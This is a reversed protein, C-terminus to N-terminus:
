GRLGGRVILLLGVLGLGVLCAYKVLESTGPPAARAPGSADLWGPPLPPGMPEQSPPPPASPDDLVGALEARTLTGSADKDLHELIRDAWDGRTFWNGVGAHDLMWVLEDRSLAKRDGGGGGMAYADFLQSLTQGRSAALAKLKAILEAKEAENAV